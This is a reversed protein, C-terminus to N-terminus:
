SLYRKAYENPHNKEMWVKFEEYCDDCLIGANKAKKFDEDPWRKDFETRSEEDSWAKEFIGKCHSCRYMEM